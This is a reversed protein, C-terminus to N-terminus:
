PKTGVALNVERFDNVPDAFRSAFAVHARALLDKWEADGLM